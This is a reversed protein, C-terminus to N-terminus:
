CHCSYIICSVQQCSTGDTPACYYTGCVGDCSDYCTEAFRCTQNQCTPDTAVHAHVTGERKAADRGTDFSEVALADIELKVKRM